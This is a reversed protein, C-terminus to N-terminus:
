LGTRDEPSKAPNVPDLIARGDQVTFASRALGNAGNVEIYGKNKECVGLSFVTQGRDNMFSLKPIGGTEYATLRVREKGSSDRVIFREASVSDCVTLASGLAGVSALALAAVGLRKWKRNERELRDLRALLEQAQQM